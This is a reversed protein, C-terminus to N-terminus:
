GLDYCHQVLIYRHNPMVVNICACLSLLIAGYLSSDWLYLSLYPLCLVTERSYLLAQESIITNACFMIFNKWFLVFNTQLIVTRKCLKNDHVGFMIIFDCSVIIDECSVIMNLCLISTHAVSMMIFHCFVIIDVRSMINLVFLLINSTDSMM